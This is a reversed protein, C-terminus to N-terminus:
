NLNEKRKLFINIKLNDLDMHITSSVNYGLALAKDKIELLSNYRKITEEKTLFTYEFKM